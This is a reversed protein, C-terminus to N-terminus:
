GRRAEVAVQGVLREFAERGDPENGVHRHCDYRALIELRRRKGFQHFIHFGVLILHGVGIGANARRGM